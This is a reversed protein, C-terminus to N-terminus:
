GLIAIYIQTPMAGSLLKINVTTGNGGSGEYSSYIGEVILGWSANTAYGLTATLGAQSIIKSNGVASRGSIYVTYIGVKEDSANRNTVSIQLVCEGINDIGIELTGGDGLDEEAPYVTQSYDWYPNLAVWYDERLIGYEVPAIGSVESKKPTFLDGYYNPSSPYYVIDSPTYIENQSYFRLGAGGGGGVMDLLVPVNTNPKVGLVKNITTSNYIKNIKKDLEAAVVKNQVANTSTGSLKDDIKGIGGISFNYILQWSKSSTYVYLLGETTNLFLDNERYGVSSLSTPLSTGYDVRIGATKLNEFVFTNDEIKISIDRGNGRSIPKNTALDQLLAAAEIPANIAEPTIGDGNEFRKGNNINQLNLPQPTFDM